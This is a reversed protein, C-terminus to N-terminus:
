EPISRSVGIAELPLIAEIYDTLNKLYGYALPSSAEDTNNWLFSANVTKSQMTLKNKIQPRIRMSNLGEDQARNIPLRIQGLFKYIADIESDNLPRKFILRSEDAFSIFSNESLELKYAYEPSNDLLYIIKTKSPM